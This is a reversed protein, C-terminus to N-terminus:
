TSPILRCFQFLEVSVFGCWISLSRVSYFGGIGSWALALGLIRPDAQDAISAVRGQSAGSSLTPRAVVMPQAACGAVLCVINDAVHPDGGDEPSLARSLLPCEFLSRKWHLTVQGSTM